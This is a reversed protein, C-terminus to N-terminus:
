KKSYTTNNNSSLMSSFHSYNEFLIQNKVLKLRANSTFTNTIFAHLESLLICYTTCSKSPKKNQKKCFNAYLMAYSILLVSVLSHFFSGLESTTAGYYKYTLLFPAATRLHEELYTKKFINCYKCLFM